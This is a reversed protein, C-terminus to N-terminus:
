KQLQFERWLEKIKRIQAKATDKDGIEVAEELVAIEVSMERVAALPVIFRLWPKKREWRERIKQFTQRSEAPRNADIQRHTTNLLRIFAPDGATRQFYFFHAAVAVLLMISMILIRIKGM